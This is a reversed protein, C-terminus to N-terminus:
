RPRSFLKRIRDVLTLRSPAPDPKDADAQEARKLPRYFDKEDDPIFQLGDYILFLGGSESPSRYAGQAELLRSSISTMEWGDVEDAPWKEDTLKAIAEREGFERVLHIPGREVVDFHPNAWSWLWTDSKTSISGIITIKGRVKPDDSDSWWIENKYLDYEYRAYDGIGFLRNNRENAAKLYNTAQEVFDEFDTYEM